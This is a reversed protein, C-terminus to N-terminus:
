SIRYIIPTITVDREKGGVHVVISDSDVGTDNIGYVNFEIGSWKRSVGKICNKPYFSDLDIWPGTSNIIYFRWMDHLLNEYDSADNVKVTIEVTQGYYFYNTTDYEIHYGGSIGSVTPVKLRNNIYFELTSIDVGVGVDLIDFSIDTNRVVDEAGRAPFENTIYPAKYDPIIKFWYDTTIINPTPSTDYVVISVYVIANHHFDNIPNYLIDLGILGGGADFTTVTCLSSVDQWGTDGAYSIEKVNFILTSQNLNYAFPRLRIWINTGVPNKESWFGPIADEIFRFQDIDTNDYHANLVHRSVYTQSVQGTDSHDKWQELYVDTNVETPLQELNVDSELEDLQSVITTNDIPAVAGIWDGGPFQFKSKQDMYTDISYDELQEIFSQTYLESGEVPWAGSLTPKQEIFDYSEARFRKYFQLNMGDYVYQSGTLSSAGDTKVTVVIDEFDPAASDPNYYGTTYQVSAVGSANTDAQGDIPTFYGSADGTKTFYVLKSLLGVGYQDRVVSTLTVSESNLIIGDPDAYVTLNKTYPSITDQHYSYKGAWSNDDIYTGNDDVTTQGTQLRYIALEDFAMDYVQWISTKDSKVTMLTHSKIVQYIQYPDIYLLNAGADKVIGIANYANSWAAASVNAYLDSTITEVVSYDLNLKRLYGDDSFVYLYKSFTIDDNSLYENLPAAPLGSGTPQIYVWGGSVSTVEVSEYAYLNDSDGSPGLLLETGVDMNSADSVQIKGTGTVTNSAFTTYYHEVAMASYNNSSIDTSVSYQDLEGNASDLRWQRIYDSNLTFFPLAGSMDNASLDRPGTYEVSMVESSIPINLSYQTGVPANSSNRTVLRDNADDISCFTGVLTGICFNGDDIRLTAM